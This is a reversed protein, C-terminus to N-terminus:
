RREKIVDVNETLRSVDIFLTWAGLRPRGPLRFLSGAVININHEALVKATEAIAGQVDKLIICIEYLREDPKTEVSSFARKPISGSLNVRGESNELQM